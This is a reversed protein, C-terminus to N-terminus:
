GACAALAASKQMYLELTGAVPGGQQLADAVAASYGNDFCQQKFVATGLKGVLQNDYRAEVLTDNSVNLTLSGGSGSSAQSQSDWGAFQYFKYGLATFDYTGPQLKVQYPTFGQAVTTAGNSVRVFMGRIPNASLDHSEITVLHSQTRYVAGLELDLSVDVSRYQQTMGDSWKSFEFAQYSSAGIEFIGDPLNFAAPSFGTMIVSNGKKVEIWLGSIEQGSDDYTRVSVKHTNAFSSSYDVLSQQYSGFWPPLATYTDTSYHYGIGDNWAEITDRSAVDSAVRYGMANLVDNSSIGMYRSPPYKSFWDLSSAFRWQHEFSVIDSVQMVREGVLVSGPNAIVLKDSGGQQKVFNYIQKYYSYQDDTQMLSVEDLMVGDAGASLASKIEGLVSNVDRKADGTAVYAIVKIGNSHFTNMVDPRINVQGDSTHYPSIVLDPKAALISSVVNQLIGHEDFYWGYYIVFRRHTLSQDAATVGTPTASSLFSIFLLAALGRLLRKM